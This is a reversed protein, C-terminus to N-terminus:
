VNIGGCTSGAPCGPTRVYTSTGPSGGMMLQPPLASGTATRPGVTTAVVESYARVARVAQRLAAQIDAPLPTAARRSTGRLKDQAHFSFVRM